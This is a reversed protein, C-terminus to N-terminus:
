PDHFSPNSSQYQVNGNPVTKSEEDSPSPSTAALTYRLSKRNRYNKIKMILLAALLPFPTMTAMGIPVVSTLDADPQPLTLRLLVIAVGTNQVGTEISVATIDPVPFRLLYSVMAGFTYGLFPVLFGAVAIRWTFIHFMFLNTYIGFVVIFIIMAVSFPGLIRRCIAALRPLYLQILVGIGVPLVLAVVYMIINSYPITINSEAFIVRGLTFLWLPMTAFAFVNSFFTMTISLNLNGGLLYTWMNSAGGGPSCGSTFLGLRLAPNDFCAYSLGFAILPMFIYQSAVGVAPGIPKKLTNKVIELDLTCGMNIYNLGMLVAVAVIFVTDVTRHRRIVSVKLEDSVKEKAEATAASSASSKAKVKVNTYGLFKGRLAFSFNLSGKTLWESSNLYIVTPSSNGISEAQYTFDDATTVNFESVDTIYNDEVVLELIGSKYKPGLVEDTWATVLRDTEVIIKDVKQPSFEVKWMEGTKSATTAALGTFMFWFPFMAMIYMFFLHAPWLPCAM